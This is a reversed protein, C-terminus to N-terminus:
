PLLTSEINHGIMYERLAFLDVVFGIRTITQVIIKMEELSQVSKTISVVSLDSSMALDQKSAKIQCFSEQMGAKSSSLFVQKIHKIECAKEALAIATRSVADYKKEAVFRYLMDVIDTCAADIICGIDEGDSFYTYKFQKVSYSKFIGGDITDMELEISDPMKSALTRLFIFEGEHYTKILLPKVTSGGLSAKLQVTGSQVYIVGYAINDLWNHNQPSGKLIAAQLTEKERGAFIEQPETAIM